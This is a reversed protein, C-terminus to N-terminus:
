QWFDHRLTVRLWPFQYGCGWESDFPKWTNWSGLKEKDLFIILLTKKKKLIFTFQWEISQPQPATWRECGCVRKLSVELWRTRNDPRGRHCVSHFGSCAKSLRPKVSHKVSQWSHERKLISVKWMRNGNRLGERWSLKYVSTNDWWMPERYLSVLHHGTISVTINWLSIFICVRIKLKTRPAEQSNICEQRKDLPNRWVM